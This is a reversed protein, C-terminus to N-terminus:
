QKLQLGSAPEVPPEGGVPQWSSLSQGLASWVQQSPSQKLVSVLKFFQPLHPQIQGMGALESTVQSSPLQSDVQLSVM